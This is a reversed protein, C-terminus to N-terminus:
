NLLAAELTFIAALTTLSLMSTSEAHDSETFRTFIGEAENGWHMLTEQKESNDAEIFKIIDEVVKLAMGCAENLTKEEPNDGHSTGTCLQQTLERLSSIEPIEFAHWDVIDTGLENAATDKLDEM